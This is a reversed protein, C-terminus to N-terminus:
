KGTPDNVRAVVILEHARDRFSQGDFKFTVTQGDNADSLDDGNHAIVTGPMTVKIEFAHGALENTITYYRKAHAYAEEFVALSREDLGAYTRLGEIYAAYGKTLARETEDQFCTERQENDLEACGAMINQFRDRDNEYTELLAKRALLGYEAPLEPLSTKLAEEAFGIQRHAEVATMSEVIKNIEDDTLASVHKTGLAKVEDDIFVSEWYNVYAWRRPVYTRHFYVYRGDPRDELRVSTPFRLVLSSAPDDAGVFRDPLTAGPEFSQAAFQTVTEEVEGNAKTETKTEQRTSWGTEKSPLADFRAFEEPSGGYELLMNVRGDASITIREKRFPCGTCLTLMSVLMGVVVWRNIANIMM